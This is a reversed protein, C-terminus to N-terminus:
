ALVRLSVHKGLDFGFQPVISDYLYVNCDQQSVTELVHVLPAIHILFEVMREM